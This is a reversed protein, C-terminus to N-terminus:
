VAFPAYTSGILGFLLSIRHCCVGVEQGAAIGGDDTADPVRGRERSGAGAIGFQPIDFALAVDVKGAANRHDVRAVAMGLDDSRDLLLHLAEGMGAELHHHVLGVDRQGLTQIRQSRDGARELRYEEGCARFGGLVRDLDGPSGGAAGADDGERAAEVAAGDHGGGKGSLDHGVLLPKTRRHRLDPVDRKGVPCFPTVTSSASFYRSKMKLASASGLRPHGGDDDLGHLALTAEM